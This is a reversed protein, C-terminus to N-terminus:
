MEISLHRGVLEDVLLGAEFEVVILLGDQASEEVRVRPGSLQLAHSLFLALLRHRLENPVLGEQLVQKGVGVCSCNSLLLLHLRCCVREVTDCASYLLLDHVLPLLSGFLRRVDTKTMLQKILVHYM